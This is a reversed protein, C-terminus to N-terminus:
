IFPHKRPIQSRPELTLDLIWSWHDWLWCNTLRKPVCSHTQLNMTLHKQKTWKSSWSKLICDPRNNTLSESGVSITTFEYSNGQQTSCRYIEWGALLSGTSRPLGRSETRELRQHFEVGTPNEHKEFKWCLHLMMLVKITNESFGPLFRVFDVEMVSRFRLTQLSRFPDSPIQNQQHVQQVARRPWLQWFTQLAIPRATPFAM